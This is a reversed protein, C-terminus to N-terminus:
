AAVGAPVRDRQIPGSAVLALGNQELARQLSGNCPTADTLYALTEGTLPWRVEYTVSELAVRREATLTM